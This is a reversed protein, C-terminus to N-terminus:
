ITFRCLSACRDLASVADSEVSANNSRRTIQPRDTTAVSITLVVDSVVKPTTNNQVPITADNPSDTNGCRCNIGCQCASDQGSSDGCCHAMTAKRRACCCRGERIRETACCCHKAHGVKRAFANTTACGCALEPYAQTAAAIVALWILTRAVISKTIWMILLGESAAAFSPRFSEM